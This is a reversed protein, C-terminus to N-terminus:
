GPAPSIPNLRFKSLAVAVNAIDLLRNFPIPKPLVQVSAPLGGRAEIDATDLGTVAVLVTHATEPMRDLQRLMEFGDMGPMHLDTILIDPASRGMVVLAAVASNVAIVIPQMPWRSLNADYLRLLNVDDEVVLITLRRPGSVGPFGPNAAGGSEKGETEPAKHLLALVSDRIVRRHGGATKWAQLTGNEVWLQVTGVSVGLLAAAESTTCFAKEVSSSSM